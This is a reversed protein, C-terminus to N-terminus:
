RLGLGHLRLEIHRAVSAGLQDTLRALLGLRPTYEVLEEAGIVDRAVSHVNGTADALGLAISQEGSWVLGSFLAPDDALRDGRGEKVVSVFQAHVEDLLAQIHATEAPRQPSFPDLLGKYEGAAYLRREVGLKDMAGTFGFGDILVGISGVMSAKDVFIKDAGVAIYYAGSTCLDGVVAYLPVDPHQTRLRKLEDNVIGAQVPSGGPSNIQLIVGAVNPAEFAAQLGKVILEASAATGEAIMGDIKVVATHPGLTGGRGTQCSPMAFVLLATLYALFCIRFFINWRRTRRQERVVELAIQKLAVREWRQDTDNSREDAM